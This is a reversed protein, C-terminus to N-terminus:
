IETSTTFSLATLGAESREGWSITVTVINRPTTGVVTTTTVVQGDANASSSTKPLSNKLLNKWTTLDLKAQTSTDSPTNGFAIDYEHASSITASRNARMRDLIDEALASAQTRLSASYNDRLSTIQLAAVGLLGISIVVVAVLVEILTMGIARNIPRYHIANQM